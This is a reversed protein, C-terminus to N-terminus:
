DYKLVVGIRSYEGVKYNRIYNRDITWKSVAMSFKDNKRQNIFFDLYSIIESKTLIHNDVLVSLIKHRRQESLGEAQSVSYGFQMLISEKALLRGNLYNQNLYNREDIARFVVVGKKRLQHYTSEMMFFMNCERCYGAAVTLEEMEANKNMIKVVADIDEILHHKHMCKFINRRVVFDKFGIKIQQKKDAISSKKQKQIKKEESLPYYGSLDMYNVIAPGSEVIIKELYQQIGGISMQEGNKYFRYIMANKTSFCHLLLNNGNDIATYVFDKLGSNKVLTWKLQGNDTRKILYEQKKDAERIRMVTSKHVQQSKMEQSKKQGSRTPVLREYVDNVFIYDTKIVSSEAKKQSRKIAEYILHYYKASLPEIKNRILSYRTENKIKDKRIVIEKKGHSDLIIFFSHDSEDESWIIQSRNTLEVLLKIYYKSSSKWNTMLREKAKAGVFGLKFDQKTSEEKKENLADTAKETILVESRNMETAVTTNKACFYAEILEEYKINRLFQIDIRESIDVLKQINNELFDMADKPIKGEKEM